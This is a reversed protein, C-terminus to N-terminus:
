SAASGNNLAKGLHRYITPRTVGFEAAIQEVTYRRKGHEDKEDYMQQALKVQRPGLKPKQGGTRGRARAAALGDMTRESMLAHEFEAVAGLIQFFMRGIATSTDIGQDLVVLDVGAGQLRKSLEILHELSRGLRDLKTVVLQDGVRNASLLAKDLEPRRALKGSVKDLFIQDCGAATLADRQAEPHQDRTSVRAYGIRM